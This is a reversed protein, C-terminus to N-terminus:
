SGWSYAGPSSASKTALIGQYGGQAGGGVAPMKEGKSTRLLSAGEVYEIKPTPTVTFPRIHAKSLSVASSVYNKNIKQPEISNNLM